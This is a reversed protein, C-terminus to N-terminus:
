KEDGVYRARPRITQGSGQQEVVHALWGAFRGIVFIVEASGLPLGLSSTMVALAFDIAPLRSFKAEIQRLTRDVRRQDASSLAPRLVDLLVQARPDGGPYAGTDFGAIPLTTLVTRMTVRRWLKEAETSAAVHHVGASTGLAAIICDVWPAGASAAVRATFSSANLEHDALLVLAANILKTERAEPSRGSLSVFVASALDHAREALREHTGAACALRRLLAPAETWPQDVLAPAHAVVVELLGHVSPRPSKADVRKVRANWAVPQNWLREAVREFPTGILDTARAGRYHPGRPSLRTISSDLVPEGWRLAAAAVAAHGARAAAKVRLTEVLQRPYRGKTAPGLLGRSAYAYITRTKVGLLAAAEKATLLVGADQWTSQQICRERQRPPAVSVPM